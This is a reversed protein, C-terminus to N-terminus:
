NKPKKTFRNETGNLLRKINSSHKFVAFLALFVVFCQLSVPVPYFNIASFLITLVAVVVAALISALSVYGSIKLVIYWFILGCIIAPPAIAVLAGTGTAIGKGGKFKLYVPYIHGIITILVVLIVIIGRLNSPINFLGPVFTNVCLVPIFGKLFDLFFCFYGM